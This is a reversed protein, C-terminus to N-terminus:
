AFSFPRGPVLTPRQRSQGANVQAGALNPQSLALAVGTLAASAAAETNGVSGYFVFVNLVDPARGFENGSRVL